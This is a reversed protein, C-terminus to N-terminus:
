RRRRTTPVPLPVRDGRPPSPDAAPGTVDPEPGGNETRPAGRVTGVLGALVDPRFPPGWPISAEHVPVREALDALAQFEAAATGPERWGVVRPFRVLRLLAEATSLRRVTVREVTRSPLPVVCAALALPRTGPTPATVALRGDATERGAGAALERAAPRLRVESSGPHVLVSGDRVPEARLVDDSVLGHGARCLAATLTSKGMGSAGVFALARGGVEVAGAHLVLARRLKLHVAVLAGAALVPVLGPDAGPHMRVTVDALGADGVFECLGPYRLVVADATRTFCYFRGGDPRGLAALVQGPPDTDPVPREAGVRLVLDPGPGPGPGAPPLPLVAASRIDLGHARYRHIGM